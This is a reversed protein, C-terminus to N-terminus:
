SLLRAIGLVSSSAYVRDDLVELKLYKIGPSVNMYWYLYIHERSNMTAENKVVFDAVVETVM